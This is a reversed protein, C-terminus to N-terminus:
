DAGPGGPRGKDGAWPGLLARTSARAHEPQARQTHLVPGATLLGLSASNHAHWTRLDVLRRAFNCTCSHRGVDRRPCGPFIMTGESGVVGARPTVHGHQSARASRPPRVSPVHHSGPSILRSVSSLHSLLWKRGRLAIQVVSGPDNM